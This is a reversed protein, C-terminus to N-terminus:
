QDLTEYIENLFFTGHTTVLQHRIWPAGSTWYELAESHALGRRQGAHGGALLRVLARNPNQASRDAPQGVVAQQTPVRQARAPFQQGAVLAFRRVVLRGVDRSPFLGFQSHNTGFFM